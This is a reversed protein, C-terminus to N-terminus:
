QQDVPRRHVGVMPSTLIGIALFIYTGLKLAGGHTSPRHTVFLWLDTSALVLGVLMFGLSLHKQTRRTM